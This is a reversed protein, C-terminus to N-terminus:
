GDSREKLFETPPWPGSLRVLLHAPIDVVALATQLRPFAGRPILAFCRLHDSSQRERWREILDAAAARLRESVSTLELGRKSRSRLYEAGSKVGGGLAGEEKSARSCIRIEIQLRGRIREFDDRYEAARKGIESTIEERSHLLTPFRFPIIDRNGFIHNVVSHFQLALDRTNNAPVTPYESYFCLLGGAEITQVPAGAVGPPCDMAAAVPESVGYLLLPM